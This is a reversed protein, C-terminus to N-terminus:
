AAGIKLATHTSQLVAAIRAASQIGENSIGGKRAEAVHSQICMGCGSLASVALCMLEFDIKQIGPKGIVNMRLRAPLKKLEPDEALHVFRYYVNNMGMIAAASKSAEVTAADISEAALIADVIDQNGLAYACSLAIGTTQAGTLGQIGEANLVTELNLRTDKAFDQIKDQLSSINM